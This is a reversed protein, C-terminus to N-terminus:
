VTPVQSERPTLLAYRQQLRTRENREQRAHRDRTIAAEIATMLDLQSFPSLCSQRTTRTALSASFIL